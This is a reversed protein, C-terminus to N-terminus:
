ACLPINGPGGNDAGLYVYLDVGTDDGCGFAQLGVCLTEPPYMPVNNLVIPLPAYPNPCNGVTPKACPPTTDVFVYPDTACVAVTHCEGVPEGDLDGTVGLAIWSTSTSCVYICSSSTEEADFYVGIEGNPGLCTGAGVATAPPPAAAIGLILAATAILSRSPKLQM